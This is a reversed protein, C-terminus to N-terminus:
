LTVKEKTAKTKVEAEPEKDCMGDLTSMAWLVKHIGGLVAPSCIRGDHEDIEDLLDELHRELASRTREMMDAM